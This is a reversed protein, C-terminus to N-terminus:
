VYLMLANLQLQPWCVVIALLCARTAWTAGGVVSQGVQVIASLRPEFSPKLSPACSLAVVIVSSKWEFLCESGLGSELGSESETRWNLRTSASM